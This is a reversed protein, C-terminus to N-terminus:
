EKVSIVFGVHDTYYLYHFLIEVRSNWRGQVYLHDLTRGKIHTPIKVRQRYGAMALEEFFENENEPDCNFDGVIITPQKPTVQYLELLMKWAEHRNGEHTLYITWVVINRRSAVVLQFNNTSYNWTGEAERCFLATGKGRGRSAYERIKFDRGFDEREQNNALWTETLLIMDSQLVIEDRQLDEGHAALSRVNCYFLRTQNKEMRELDLLTKLKSREKLKEAEARAKEHCKIKKLNVNGTLFLDDLKEM